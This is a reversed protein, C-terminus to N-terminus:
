LSVVVTEAATVLALAAAERELWHSVRRVVRVEEVMLLWRWNLFEVVAVGDVREEDGSEGVVDLRTLNVVEKAATGAEVRALELVSATAVLDKKKKKEPLKSNPRRSFFSSFPFYVQSKKM